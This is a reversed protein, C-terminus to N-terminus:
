RLFAEELFGKRIGRGGLEGTGGRYERMYNLGEWFM